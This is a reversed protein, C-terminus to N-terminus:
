SNFKRKLGVLGLLGSGLLWVAGPIPVPVTGGVWTSGPDTSIAQIHAAALWSGEGGGEESYFAFFSALLGDAELLFTITETGEFRNADDTPFSFLFDFYGDGDAKYANTGMSYTPTPATAPGFVSASLDGPDIAPDLNIYVSGIFNDNILNATLTLYVSGATDQDDFVAILWPAGGDPNVKTPLPTDFEFTLTGAAAPAVWFSSLALVSLLVLIKRM